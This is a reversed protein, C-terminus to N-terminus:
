SSAGALVPLTTVASFELPHAGTSDRVTFDVMVSAVDELNTEAIQDPKAKQSPIQAPLKQCGAAVTPALGLNRGTLTTGNPDYATFLASASVRSALVRCTTPAAPYGSPPSSFQEEVLNGATDLRLWLLSPSAVTDATGDRNFLDAHFAMDKSTLWEVRYPASGVTPGDAVRLYSTWAQLASRALGSAVTRDTTTQAASNTQVSLTMTIAGLVTTLAMAVIMEVLTVGADPHARLRRLATLM